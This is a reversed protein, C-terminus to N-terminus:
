WQYGVSASAGAHGQSNSNVTFKVGVKGNDSLRSYGVALANQGRYTGAGVSVMSKGATTVHYLGGSALAGAIGARLGKDVNNIQNSINGAVYKLQNVNVADTGDKGPAVNTIRKGGANIGNENINVDGVKVEKATVSNVKIDDKMSVKVGNQDATTTINKGDGNVAVNSGLKKVGTSGKDANFTLGENTVKKHTDRITNKTEESLDVTYDTVTTSGDKHTNAAKTVEVHNSGAKVAASTDNIGKASVKYITQGNTADTRSTIEINEGAEVETKAAKLQKVNVADTDKKGAEVNTIRTANNDGDSVKLGENTQTLKVKVKGDKDIINIGEVEPTKKISVTVTNGNVATMVNKGDDFQTTDTNNEGGKINVTTNLNAKHADGSNGAFTLGGKAVESKFDKLQKVNVADTDKEGEAVHTIKNGGNNLGEDTLTVATKGNVPNVPTITIGNHTIETKTKDDGDKFEASTLGKLEKALKVTLETGGTTANPTSVVGINNDSLKTKDTVGGKVDVQKNLKVNAVEGIDGGYKMGDDLTAVEHKITETSGADKPTEYVIRTMTASEKGDKGDKGDVGSPGQAGKITLGNKGNEGNLGISGDKGNIAVASGDKGNVGISGDIGDKGPTGKEGVVVQNKLGYTYTVNGDKVDQKLTLNDSAAFNVSKGSAVTTDTGTEVLNSGTANTKFSYDKIKSALGNLDIKAETNPVVKGTGDTYTLTVSKDTDNYTYTTPTIHRETSKLQKVNVADNDDEGAAVNVIKNKGNDLGNATLTVNTKGSEKAKITVGGDTVTTNGITLSGKDTLDVTNNLAFTFDTGDRKVRLNKGAKLGLTEGAKIAASKNATEDAKIDEESVEADKNNGAKAYWTAANIMDAVNKVTTVKSDDGSKPKVQGVKETGAKNEKTVATIEGKEGAGLTSSVTVTRKGSTGEVTVTTGGTGVFSVEDGAKVIGRSDAGQSIKWGSNNVVDVVNKITAVGDTAPAEFKGTFTDPQAPPVTVTATNVNFKVVGNDGVEATTHTGNTFDLGNSLKVTKAKTEDSNSKYKLDIVKAAEDGSFNINVNDGEAKTTVVKNGDAAKVNFKIGGTHSLAKETTSGTDGGLSVKNDFKKNVINLQEETAARGSKAFKADDLTTNTLGTIDGTKGDLKIPSDGAVNVIGNDKFEVKGSGATNTISTIDTLNGKVDVAYTKSNDTSDDGPTVTTNKGNVVKVATKAIDKVMNKSVSVEYTTNKEGYGTANEAPTVTAINEDGTKAEAAKVKETSISDNLQKVNVADNDETGKAVGTIKADVTENTSGPKLKSIHLDGNTDASVTVTNDGNKYTTSTLDKLESDLAFTFIGDTRNVRLNKGAKLTLKDGASMAQGDSNSDDTKTTVEDKGNEAKAYWTAANIMDAVNKVTTVKSDDGSKPKVQGVKETGAKNEKTVATIEGKEGAGLTSSVTVTRKGSTGEVTVTTGGTGVFSVEDGAKVIGRSDAGQSIKWGSNNVVDVVNKITAVGDTAPAEFKGTFTDPQAPPVTVTATNVNFKVVGNDGVEATTHTGNTFDLGNSLKVTKAKTEDSNSKYKLDIVKAAEDGSFNINVNDGEAKTTVVKNGDAAKVNFKIGGTHSLAKETTSGTDGGLSVKNDFKKNVINLQEETAARGSKAFKADDLTTNTLGTIDGTKGDLKIPSDGAVNVIGNDKFEVKGSGATNTISTIDTLNGKVDVAYTKSNDTSDDGPTVTTNKGNVVKVATKAIDKVMNKSVSVEYTTNKEGYGTANEAPTVTAINEDGTKAEAAKVKETSISDNLQKVNVADNDETGKAVGTIKADVTENTSGPKLKSIHLDGNTDASVTVTNDGNKYTTSTLDKLESDLAFTFIGDTRNVRLNKGAKLTLKDGASMAQGDSNSDDTKTTVEDKGNEAKAYWTAANIMDAVNKVTTVKSDDGSKPKVQGVKETGAKNEKTVATIEGKEGAGLTSSVTVTRKGSTGEVTVTTGGTGVFSVEDGAKVIGRSDAGQSIKWGSNNVVDVVNKITAVGDTAPAEFKGTFTDPQAPPVTVTATNVNFKVVGNDGVEATTHTGNTFDLGNSLKVTKAKTEDSNSKYKLDIVKAAEDGSFNINVNDGEAKTTVVKNGDAAKVNFKIGGTHSLAKETTSGTDGGLSVKNDFKKNVINLQEETAARGSKAFNEGGLTTNTLGTIDGTKGDLKIPHNGTTNGDTINVVGDSTFEVKGNGTTNTISTIDTLDGKVNVAYTKSNDSTDDKATVTTNKGDVVKVATKAINKVASEKVSINYTAGKTGKGTEATPDVEVINNDGNTVDAKRVTETSISDKLQKYNVADNDKTGEAVNVIKNGGNNLGEGTLKVATKGEGPTTPTITIGGNDVKTNGITLSGANTLNVANNLAFTFVGNTRNVHLNKGAKFTLESGANVAEGNDNKTEALDEESNDAKAFWKASNIMDAVNKVTTVKNDDGTNAKVQGKKPANDGTGNETVAVITGKAAEKLTANVKVIRKNPNTADTEVSVTTGDGNAFSVEDGAKVIGRSETGQSIKWGSNNVVDVVNKITAVGDTAPAEFKGTFTDPQAPPVTVTATNVNFKVVGNDGVEATTHTGNTFDLGNSLKVTKAKTEDSNSKYKLDIVKAAEDGSFNINVNDGEAKTTVVKNGDAAKVNFKIGGTHSLAKETTSGTDGGLSVKNDFKKNVINLQEETAARGSKAFNEGGLTTNTLGTIDGTKGDLKIPHNGTTNGDTINVVGDSTFEVKGNGTTNTISTIDTLDGKVNVAYTKSNDSTDDKATVTTNKGDVVKVATKAINKVASEKVSINYTAGKTGKGTEATPDVEVINNDGNTVDAKRVTETSISDKLQKYNVADNDKTGEAVNVIKNGGNNLGEGTLKVATKGEGPTTPTITIGGNDVKTNGITLSGANTLDVVNNLAFTFNTGDRKVRLNKGAKLGLIEGAKMAASKNATEDAKTDDESVEADKDNGAKAYWTANNVAKVVTDVTALKGSDTKSPELSDKHITIQGKKSNDKTSTVSDVDGTNATLKNGKPDIKITTNDVNVDYSITAGESSETVVTANTANGSKFNVYDGPNILSRAGGNTYLNWGTQNVKDAVDYATALAYKNTKDGTPVVFRGTPKHKGETTKSVTSGNVDIQTIPSKEETQITETVAKFKITSLGSAEVDSEIEISKDANTFNVKDGPNVLGVKNGKAQVEWGSENIANAVASTTALGQKPASSKGDTTSFTGQTTSIELKKDSATTTIFSNAAGVVSLRQDHLRVDGSGSNGKFALNVSKLQAVNVADDDATGAALHNIQRTKGTDGISLGALTSTRVNQINNKLNDYKNTRAGEVDQSADFGTQGNNTTTKSQSGLAIGNAINAVAGSGIAVAHEASATTKNPRDNGSQQGSSGLAIANNASATADQGIALSRSKTAHAEYGIGVASAAEATANYGVATTRVDKAQAGAGIATNNAGLAKAGSGLSVANSGTSSANKGIAIADTGTAGKNDENTGGSSNVSFYKINKKTSFKLTKGDTGVREVDITDTDQFTVTEDGKVLADTKGAKPNGNEEVDRLKWKTIEKVRAPNLDLNWVTKNPDHPDPHIVTIDGNPSVVDYHKIAGAVAKLQAVNVADSDASGPAVNILQRTTDKNGISVPGTSGRITNKIAELAGPADVLKVPAYVKDPTDKDSYSFGGDQFKKYNESKQDNSVRVIQYSDKNLGQRASGDKNTTKSGQGLAVGGASTVEAQNGLATGNIATVTSHSGIATGNQASVNASNGFASSDTATAKSENGFASSWGATAKANDGYAAANKAASANAGTAVANAGTANANHGTAISDTGSANATAGAAISDRGSATAKKGLATANDATAKASAGVAMSANGTAKAGEPADLDTGGNLDGSGIAISSEGKAQTKAGVATSLYNEASANKGVAIGLQEKANASKGVAVGYNKEAIAGEGFASSNYGKAQAGNGVATSQQGAAEAKSGIATAGELKAVSNSGIAIMGRDPSVGVEGNGVRNTVANAGIAVSYGDNAKAAEGYAVSNRNAYSNTGIAMGNVTHTGQPYNIAAEAGGVIAGASVAALVVASLTKSSKTKGKARSLESVAVWTQTITNWIVKYIHNM